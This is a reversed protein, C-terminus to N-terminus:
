PTQRRPSRPRGATRAARETRFRLLDAEVLREMHPLDSADGVQALVTAFYAKTQGSKDELALVSDIGSKLYDRFRERLENPLETRLSAESRGVGHFVDAIAKVAVTDPKGDVEDLISEIVLSAPIQRLLNEVQRGLEAETKKEDGPKSEAIVPIMECLYRFLGKVSEADAFHRLLPVVGPIRMETVNETKIRNLLEDRLPVSIGAVVPIWEEPSLAGALMQQTVWESVWASDNVRLNDLTSRLRRPDLSRVETSNMELLARKLNPIADVHGLEYARRWAAFRGTAKADNKGLTAYM